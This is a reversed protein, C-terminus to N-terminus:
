TTSSSLSNKEKKSQQLLDMVEKVLADAPVRGTETRVHDKLKEADARSMCKNMVARSFRSDVLEGGDLLIEHLEWDNLAEVDLECTFGTETTLTM